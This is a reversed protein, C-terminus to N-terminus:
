SNTISDLWFIKENDLSILLFCEFVKLVVHLVILILAIDYVINALSIGFHLSKTLRFLKKLYSQKSKIINYM